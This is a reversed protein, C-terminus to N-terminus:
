HILMLLPAGDPGDADKGTTEPEGRANICRKRTKCEAFERIIADFNVTELVDCEISMVSLCNLRDQTIHIRLESKILKLKSFSREGTCNTVMMSLLMRIAVSINPFTSELKNNKITACKKQRHFQRNCHRQHRCM